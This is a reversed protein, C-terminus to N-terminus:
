TSYDWALTSRASGSRLQCTAHRRSDMVCCLTMILVLRCTQLGGGLWLERTLASFPFTLVYIRLTLQASSKRVNLFALSLPDRKLRPAGKKAALRAPVAALTLIEPRM